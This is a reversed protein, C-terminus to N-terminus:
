HSPGMYHLLVDCCVGIWGISIQPLSGVELLLTMLSKGGGPWLHLRWVTLPHVHGCLGVWGIPLAWHSCLFILQTVNCTRLWLFRNIFVHILVLGNKTATCECHTSGSVHCQLEKGEGGHMNGYNHQIELQESINHLIFRQVFWFVVSPQTQTCPTYIYINWWKKHQVVICQSRKGVYAHWTCHM